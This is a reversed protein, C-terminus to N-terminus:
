QGVLGKDAKGDLKDSIKDLKAFLTGIMADFEHRQVYKGVVLVEIGNVKTALDADAKQLDSVSTWLVKVTWGGLFGAIGIAINFLMQHAQDM